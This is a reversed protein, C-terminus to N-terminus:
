ADKCRKIKRLISPASATRRWPGVLDQTLTNARWSPTNPHAADAVHVGEVTSQDTLADAGFQAVAADNLPAEGRGVHQLQHPLPEGTM